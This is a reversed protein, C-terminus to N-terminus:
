KMLSSVVAGTFLRSQGKLGYLVKEFGKELIYMLKNGDARM